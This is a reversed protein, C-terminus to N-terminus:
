LKSVILTSNPATSGVDLRAGTHSPGVKLTVSKSSQSIMADTPIVSKKLCGRSRGPISLSPPICSEGGPISSRCPLIDKM